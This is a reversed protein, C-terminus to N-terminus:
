WMLQNLLLGNPGRGWRSRAASCLSQLDMKRIWCPPNPGRTLCLARQAPRLLFKELTPLASQSCTSWASAARAAVTLQQTGEREAMRSHQHDFTGVVRVTRAFTSNLITSKGQPLACFASASLFTTPSCTLTDPVYFPHGARKIHDHSTRSSTKPCFSSSPTTMPTM